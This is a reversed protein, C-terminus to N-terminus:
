LSENKKPHQPHSKKWIKRKRTNRTGLFPYFIASEAGEAGLKKTYDM